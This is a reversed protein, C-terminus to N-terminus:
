HHRHEKFALFGFLKLRLIFGFNEGFQEFFVKLGLRTKAGLIEVLRLEVLANVKM